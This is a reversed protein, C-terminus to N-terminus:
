QTGATVEKVLDGYAKRMRESTFYPKRRQLGSLEERLVDEDAEQFDRIAAELAGKEYPDFQFRYNGVIEAIGGRKSCLIPVGVDMAELVVYGFPEYLSPVILADLSQLFSQKRAGQCWGYFKVKETLGAAERYLLIESLHQPDERGCAVRLEGDVDRFSKVCDLLGKRYDMRGLFGFVKRECRIDRVLEGTNSFSMGNSIVRIKPQMDPYLTALKDAEALSVCVIANARFLCREFQTQVDANDGFPAELAFPETTPVSHVVYILPRGQLISEDLVFSLGYYHIVAADFSLSALRDTETLPIAALDRDGPYLEAALDPIAAPDYMHIFGTDEERGEYLQNMFSAIGGIIYGGIENTIHVARYHRAFRITVM